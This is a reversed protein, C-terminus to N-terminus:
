NVNDNKEIIDLSWFTIFLFVGLTLGIIVASKWLVFYFKSTFFKVFSFLRKEKHIFGNSTDYM